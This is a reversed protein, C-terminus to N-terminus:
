MKILLSAYPQCVTTQRDSRVVLDWKGGRGTSYNFPIRCKLFFLYWLGIATKGNKPPTRKWTHHQWSHVPWQAPPKQSCSHCRLKNEGKRKKQTDAKMFYSHSNRRLRRLFRCPDSLVFFCLWCSERRRPQMGGRSYSLPNERLFVRMKKKPKGAEKLTPFWTVFAKYHGSPAIFILFM